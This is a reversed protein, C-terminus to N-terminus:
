KKNGKIILPEDLIYTKRPEGYKKIGEKLENVIYDKFLEEDKFFQKLESSKTELEEIDQKIEEKNYRSLLYLKIEAIHSAQIKTLKYQKILKKEAEQRNNSDRIMEIVNHIDNLAILIGKKKHKELEYSSIKYKFVRKLTELRFEYWKAIIEKINFKKLELGDVCVFQTSFSTALISSLLQTQVKSPDANNKPIIVLNVGNVKNTNDEINSINTIKGSKIGQQIAYTITNVYKGYPLETVVIRGKEDIHTKAILRVVGNGTKYIEALEKRGNICIGGTPFDPTIFNAMEDLSISPDKIYSIALKCVETFNHIPIGTAFGLGIGMNGMILLNPYKVPILEPEYESEDYNPKWNVAIKFDEINDACYQTMKGSIYRIAAHEDGTISGYAGSPEIIMKGVSFWQGLRVLAESISADGHPHYAGMCQGVIKSVKIPPKNPYLNLDYLSTIIRRAIPKFGDYISPFARSLNINYGYICMDQYLEEALDVEKEKFDDM